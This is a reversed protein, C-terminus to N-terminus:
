KSKISASEGYNFNQNAAVIQQVILNGLQIM